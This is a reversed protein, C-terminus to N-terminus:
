GIAVALAPFRAEGDRGAIAHEGHGFEVLRHVAKGRMALVSGTAGRILIYLVDADEAHGTEVWRVRAGEDGDELLAARVAARAADEFGALFVACPLSGIGRREGAIAAPAVLAAM